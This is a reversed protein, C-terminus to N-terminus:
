VAVRGSEVLKVVKKHVSDIDASADLIFINKQKDALSLFGQRVKAHYDVGKQEMRDLTAKMRPAATQLDVDLIITMDPWTRELCDAAIKIVNDVGFGGAFGQYACTSSVWRDLIVCKGAEMAPKICEVWVQARAAMYLLLETRTCMAAHEPNLLIHRIQEGIATTGPDRFQSTEIGQQNIWEALLKAQTSKGCGDPGDLVIFKGKLEYNM